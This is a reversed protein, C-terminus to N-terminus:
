GINDLLEFSSDRSDEENGNMQLNEELKEQSLNLTVNSKEMYPSIEEPNPPAM